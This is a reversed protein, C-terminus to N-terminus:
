YDLIYFHVELLLSPLHLRSQHNVLLRENVELILSNIVKFAVDPDFAALSLRSAVTATLQCQCQKHKIASEDSVTLSVPLCEDIM